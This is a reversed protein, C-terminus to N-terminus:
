ESASLRSNGETKAATWGFNLVGCMEMRATPANANRNAAVPVKRQNIVSAEPAMMMVYVATQMHRITSRLRSGPALASLIGPPEQSAQAHMAMAMIRSERNVARSAT